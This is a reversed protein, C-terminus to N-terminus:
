KANGESPKNQDPSEEGAFKTQARRSGHIVEVTIPPPAAKEPEPKPPPPPPPAPKRVQRPAAASKGAGTKSADPPAKLGNFLYALATGPPKAEEKDTPNRLVLQIRADNSALSLIEAQEPTVLVNVVPVSVPKGEADKQINQGASLVTMNQLLTKTVTGASSSGGPPNGAILIDVHSGPTVFGAVGVIDNVRVAVARMGQPITAALGAGAGPAALRSDVVAEGQFIPDVVGRGLAKDLSVLTGLPPTGAFDAMRVDGDKILEGSALNRAAVVVQTTATRSANLQSSILRYLVASAGGAIVLAFLLVIVLRQRV